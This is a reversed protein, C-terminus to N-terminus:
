DTGIIRAHNQLDELNDKISSNIQELLQQQDSRSLEKTSVPPLIRVKINAPIIADNKEGMVKWTGDIIVPVIPTSTAIALKFAGRKFEGMNPNTSIIGEPYVVVSRGMGIIERASQLATYNQRANDKEMYITQALNFWISFIPFEAALSTAVFSKPKRVYALMVASDFHGQHNGIFIVPKSTPIHHLGEVEVRAGALRLMCRAFYALYKDAIRTSFGSM